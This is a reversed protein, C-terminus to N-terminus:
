VNVAKKIEINGFVTVVTFRATVISKDIDFAWDRLRTIRNDHTLAETFRRKIEPIVYSVPKGYLSVLEVGYNRSVILFRYRETNLCLYVAQKMAELRDAYGYVRHKEIDFYFTNTPKEEIQINTKLSGGTAPIM